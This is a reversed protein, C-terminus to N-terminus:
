VPHSGVPLTGRRVDDFFTRSGVQGGKLVVELGDFPGGDAILSLMTVAPALLTRARAGFAGTEQMTFGATDGGAVVTRTLGAESVAATLLRGFFSGLASAPPASARDWRDAGTHVVVSRGDGLARLVDHEVHAARDAALVDGAALAVGLWGRSLADDVQDHTHAAASGSVVLMRDVADARAPPASGSAGSTRALEYGLGYSLGGSGIAVRITSGTPLWAAAGVRQVDETTLADFVVLGDRELLARGLNSGSCRAVHLWQMNSVPLATQAALHRVLDAEAMPTTPHRSMTGHRDLREVAGTSSRAFHTGFVTYRGFEPQAALVPVPQRGFVDLAIDAARGISGTSPSSDFTSSTKYQVLQPALERFADLAPRLERDMDEAPLARSVGAIGIVDEDRALARLRERSPLGFLLLARLGFRSFQGLSDSAGTFDDAYFCLEVV